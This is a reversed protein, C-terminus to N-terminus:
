YPWSVRVFMRTEDVTSIAMRCTYMLRARGQEVVFNRSDVTRPIKEKPGIV